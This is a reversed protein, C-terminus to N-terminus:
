EDYVGFINYILCIVNFVKLILKMFLASLKIHFFIVKILLQNSKFFSKKKPHGIM